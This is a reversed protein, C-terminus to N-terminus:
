KNVNILVAECSKLDSNLVVNKIEEGDKIEISVTNPPFEGLNHAYLFLDNPKSPDLKIEFSKKAYDLLYKSVVAEGNLYISVIDGDKRGHDWLNISIDTGSVNMEKVYSISRGSFSNRIAPKESALKEEPTSKTKVNENAVIKSVRPAKNITFTSTAYKAISYKDEPFLEIGFVRYNDGEMGPDLKIKDIFSSNKFIGLEQVVMDDKSLYFQITKNEPINETTWVLEAEGPSTWVTNSNPHNIKIATKVISQDSIEICSLAVNYTNSQLLNSQFLCIALVFLALQKM